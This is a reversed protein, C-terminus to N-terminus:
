SSRSVNKSSDDCLDDKLLSAKTMLSSEIWHSPVERALLTSTLPPKPGYPLRVTDFKLNITKPPHLDLTDEHLLMKNRDMELVQLSSHLINFLLIKSSIIHFPM